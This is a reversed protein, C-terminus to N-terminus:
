HKNHQAEEWYVQGNEIMQCYNHIFIERIPLFADAHGLQAPYSGTVLEIEEALKKAVAADKIPVFGFLTSCYARSGVCSAIFQRAFDNWEDLLVQKEVPAEPEYHYLCLAEMYSVLERELKKKTFFSVGTAASAKIMMWAHMFADASGNKNLSFYRKELLKKRYPDFQPDLEKQIAADLQTRKDVANEIEYYHVPWDELYDTQLATDKKLLM